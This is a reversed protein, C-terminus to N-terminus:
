WSGGGGGGSGGGSFGGGGFGSSGSSSQPAQINSAIDATIEDLNKALNGVGGAGNMWKPEVITDGFVKAWKATLGFAVAYPLNKEFIEQKEAWDLKDLDATELFERYCKAEHALGMGEKSRKPYLILFAILGVFGGGFLAMIVIESIYISTTAWVGLGGVGIILALIIGIGQGSIGRFYQKGIRKMKLNINQFIQFMKDKKEYPFFGDVLAATSKIEKKNTLM